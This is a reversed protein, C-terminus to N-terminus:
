MEDELALRDCEIEFSNDDGDVVIATGREVLIDKVYGVFSHNHIDSSNPNPVTVEDGEAIINGNRDFM